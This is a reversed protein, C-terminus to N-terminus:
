EQRLVIKQRKYIRVINLGEKTRKRWHKTTLMEKPSIMEGNQLVDEAM